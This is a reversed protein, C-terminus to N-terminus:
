AIFMFIDIIFIVYEIGIRGQLSIEWALLVIRIDDLSEMSLLVAIMGYMAWRTEILTASFFCGLGEWYFPSSPSVFVLLFVKIIGRSAKLV